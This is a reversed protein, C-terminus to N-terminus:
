QHWQELKGETEGPWLHSKKTLQVTNLNHQKIKLHIKLSNLKRLIVVKSHTTHERPNHGGPKQADSLATLMTPLWTALGQKSSPFHATGPQQDPQDTPDATDEHIWHDLTQKTIKYGQSM